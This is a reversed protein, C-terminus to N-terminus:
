LARVREASGRRAEFDPSTWGLKSFLAEVDEPVPSEIKVAKSTYPHEFTLDTALLLLRRIAFTERFLRNQKGDGHTTDGIVPHSVHAFHRRIQHFRGTLPMARVLSFRASPHTGVPFPLEATAARQYDTIADAPAKDPEERLAHHIRGREPTHGRVVALYGKRIRRREFLLCMRNAPEPDLAFLLVGSTARDLRHVPYVWRGIQNRLMPMCSPQRRALTTPHVFLGGPKHIAVYHDDRYLIDLM